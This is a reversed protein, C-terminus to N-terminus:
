RDDFLVEHLGGTGVDPIRILGDASGVTLQELADGGFAPTAPAGWPLACRRITSGDPAYQVLRGAGAQASWLNGGRDVVAGEPLAGADAFGRVNAVVATDADYDCQLIRPLDGDAFYMKRGDVSFCISTAVAVAPLALRRLGYQRSYQYFSGIPRADAGDNRTGFVFFGRRDTRGEHISTRPEAPDVAVLARLRWARQTRSQPAAPTAALCLRKPQCLLLRGSSCQVFAGAEDPLACHMSLQSDHSWARLTGAASDAWWWRASAGDWRLCHAQRNSRLPAAAAPTSSTRQSTSLSM